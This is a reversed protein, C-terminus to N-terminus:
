EHKWRDIGERDFLGICKLQDTLPQSHTFRTAFRNSLIIKQFFIFVQYALASISLILTLDKVKNLQL